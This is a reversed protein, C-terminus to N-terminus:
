EGPSRGGYLAACLQGTRQEPEGLHVPRQVQFFSRCLSPRHGGHPGARGDFVMGPPNGNRGGQFSKKKKKRM